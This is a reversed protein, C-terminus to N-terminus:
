QRAVIVRLREAPDILHDTLTPDVDLQVVVLVTLPSRCIPPPRSRGGGELVGARLGSQDARVVVCSGGHLGGGAARRAHIECTALSSGASGGWGLWSSSCRWCVM